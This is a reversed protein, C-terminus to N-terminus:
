PGSAARIWLKAFIYSSFGWCNCNKREKIHTATKNNSFLFTAWQWIDSWSQDSSEPIFVIFYLQCKLVCDGIQLTNM